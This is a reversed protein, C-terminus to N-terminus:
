EGGLINFNVPSLHYHENLVTCQLLFFIYQYINNLMRFDSNPWKYFIKPTSQICHLLVSYDKSGLLILLLSVETHFSWAHSTGTFSEPGSKELSHNPHPATPLPPLRLQPLCRPAAAEAQVGHTQTVSKPSGRLQFTDALGQSGEADRYLSSGRCSAPLLGREECRLSAAARRSCPGPHADLGGVQQQAAPGACVGGRGKGRGDQVAPAWPVPSSEAAGSGFASAAGGKLKFNRLPRTQNLWRRM